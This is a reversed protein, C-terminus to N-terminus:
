LRLPFIVVNSLLKGEFCVSKKRKKELSKFVVLGQFYFGDWHLCGVRTIVGQLITSTM